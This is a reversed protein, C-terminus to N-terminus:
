KMPLQRFFLPIKISQTFKIHGWSGNRVPIYMDYVYALNQKLPPFFNLLLVTM